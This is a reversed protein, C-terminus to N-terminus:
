SQHNYVNALNYLSIARQKPLQLQQALTLSQQHLKLAKPYNGLETIASGVNSLARMEGPRDGLSQFTERVTQCALFAQEFQNNQLHDRCAQLIQDQTQAAVVQQTATTAASPSQGGLSILLIALSVYKPSSLKSNGSHKGM